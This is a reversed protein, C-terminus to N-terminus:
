HWRQGNQRSLAYTEELATLRAELQELTLHKTLLELAKLKHSLQVPQGVETFGINALEQVIMEWTVGATEQAREQARRIATQVDINILLKSGIQKSTKASYGSCRAAESANGCTLYAWM